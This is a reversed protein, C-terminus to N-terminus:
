WTTDAINPKLALRCLIKSDCGFAAYILEVGFVSQSSLGYAPVVAWVTRAAFHSCNWVWQRLRLSIHDHHVKLCVEHLWNYNCPALEPLPSVLSYITSVLGPPPSGLSYIPQVLGPPPSGRWFFYIYKKSSTRRSRVEWFFVIYKKSSTRRPRFM